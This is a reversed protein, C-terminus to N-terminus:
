PTIGQKALESRVKNVTEATAKDDAVFDGFKKYKPDAAMAAADFKSADAPRANYKEFLTLREKQVDVDLPPIAKVHELATATAADITGDPKKAFMFAAGPQRVANPGVALRQYVGSDAGLSFIGMYRLEMIVDAVEPAGRGLSNSTSASTEGSRNTPVFALEARNYGLKAQPSQTAPNQSVEVGINTGTAALVYSGSNQCGSLLLLATVFALSLELRPNIM